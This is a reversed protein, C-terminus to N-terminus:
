KSENAEEELGRLLLERPEKALGKPDKGAQPEPEHSFRFSRLRPVLDSGPKLSQLFMEWEKAEAESLGKQWLCYRALAQGELVVKGFCETQVKVNPESWVAYCVAPFETGDSDAELLSRSWQVQKEEANWQGNTMTPEVPMNVKLELHDPSMRFLLYPIMPLQLVDQPEPRKADPKTDQEKKWAELLQQYEQTEGFYGDFSTKLEELSGLFKLRDPIPRDEAIGMKLAIFRQVFELFRKPDDYEVDWFFRSLVPLPDISFYSREVLYQGARILFEETLVSHPHHSGQIQGANEFTWALLSLNKVDRRFEGDLFKKLEPFGPENKLESELWRTLHNVLQDCAKMRSDVDALLDDNGRFREVYMALSGLSTDWHTFSGKGGVDQPMEGSFLSAFKHKQNLKEPVAANYAGAIKDLEEKPFEQTNEPKDGGGRWVTIERKLSKGDPTLEVEYHNSVCGAAALLFMSLLLGYCFGRSM